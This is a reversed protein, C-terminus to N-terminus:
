ADHAEKASQPTRPSGPIPRAGALRPRSSPRAGPRPVSRHRLYRREAEAVLGPLVSVFETLSGVGGAAWGAADSGTAGLESLLALARPTHPAARDGDALDRVLLPLVWPPLDRVCSRLLSLGADDAIFWPDILIVGPEAAPLGGSREIGTVKVAFDLQEAIAAAYDALPLAQGPHYPRWDTGHDGYCGPDTGAPLSALVPAAVTVTFTPLHSLAGFANRATDIDQITSPGLPAGEAIEVIRAALRQVIQRYVPRYRTLRLLARLGNEAYAPDVAGIEFAAPLGPLERDTPTATATATSLPVWLVPAFRRLPEALGLRSVREFFCAWERGPLSRAIYSPSYLPVFVEATALAQARVAKWNSGVPIDQDFFGPTLRSRQSARLAVATVLDDFFGRVWPDSDSPLSGALRVSHAYSLFFYHGTM